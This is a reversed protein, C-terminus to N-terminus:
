IQAVKACIECLRQDKIRELPHDRRSCGSASSDRFDLYAPRARLAVLQLADVIRTIATELRSRARARHITRTPCWRCWGRCGVRSARSGGGVGSAPHTAPGYSGNDCVIKTLSVFATRAFELGADLGEYLRCCPSRLVPRNPVDWRKATRTTTVRELLAGGQAGAEIQALSELTRRAGARARTSAEMFSWFCPCRHLRPGGSQLDVVPSFGPVARLATRVSDVTKASATSSPNSSRFTATPIRRTLLSSRSHPEAQDTASTRCLYPGLVAADCVVAVIDTEEVRRHVEVTGCCLDQDEGPEGLAWQRCIQDLLGWSRNFLRSGVGCWRRPSRGWGGM